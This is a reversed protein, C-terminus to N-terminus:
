CHATIQLTKQHQAKPPLPVLQQEMKTLCKKLFLSLFARLDIHCPKGTAWLQVIQPVHLQPCATQLSQRLGAGKAM